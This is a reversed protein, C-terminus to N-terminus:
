PPKKRPSISITHTFHFWFVSKKISNFSVPCTTERYMIYCRKPLAQM